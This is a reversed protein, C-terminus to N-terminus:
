PSVTFRSLLANLAAAEDALDARYPETMKALIGDSSASNTQFNQALWDAAEIVSALRPGMVPEHHAIRNRTQYLTELRASVQSRSISKNPFLKRLSRQWLTAEYDPSFLRKWFFLTLQAILQGTTIPVVKQRAKSHKEHSLGAPVGDPYAVVDLARKQAQSLKAYAARRAWGDAKNLHSAEDGKWVFPAPPRTLWDPNGFTQRLRECIANRLAIEIMGTVPMLTAGVRMTQHHLAIADRETGTIALFQSLRESSLLGAAM